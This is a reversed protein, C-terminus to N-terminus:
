PRVSASHNTSDITTQDSTDPERNFHRRNSALIAIEVILKRIHFNNQWFSKLLRDSENRGYAGIPQKVFYEFASEVFARQCDESDALHDGLQRAGDFKALNGIRPQYSGSSDIPREGDVERYRGVADFHELAFGLSNIKQHCIQCNKEGTQLEVRQRTTLQPHLDPDLPTFAEDPPRIVRGLIHRSLLVGRHIPSSSRYYAFHSLLLPHTLVGVHITPNSTSIGDADNLIGEPKEEPKWGDGYFNAIRDSTPAWDAQLLERFDSADSNVVQDLFKSLSRSLDRVLESDFGPYLENDKAIPHPDALDLWHYLFRRIKQRARYDDVMRWTAAEIQDKNQLKHQGIADILWPDAPLSDFLVIALRNATRQSKSRDSDINPYLFRPSKFCKLVAHRIASSTDDQNAQLVSDAYRVKEEDSLPGRFAVQLLEILFARLKTPQDQKGGLRKAYAPFLDDIVVDAFEIAADTTSQDWSRDVAIGRDYGYSHDDPPLKSQLAFSSPFPDPLLNATPIIEESGGPPVWSLSIRVPPQETKRKRQQLDIKIPYARGGTLHLTQRFEDKGQSQVHNNFFLPGLRGFQMKFSCTSRVIIEYTGSQPILLSGNWHIYYIQPDIEEGPGYRGFDFDVHNDFRKIRLRDDGWGVGTFYSGEIGRKETTWLQEGFHAYLDAVSQRLQEGTLRAMRIRPPNRLTQASPSYFSQHIYTAVAQADDGICKEPDEEPMTDAIIQTLESVSLDGVLPATGQDSNGVGATGHCEICMQDYIPKGLARWKTGQARCDCSIMTVLIIILSLTPNRM